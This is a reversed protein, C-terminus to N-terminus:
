IADSLSTFEFDSVKIRPCLMSPGSRVPPGFALLKNMLFFPSEAFRMNKVPKTIKGDEILFTGDRTVGSLLLTRVNVTSGTLRHVWIGRKTSAIMEELTQTSGTIELRAREPNLLLKRKSKQAEHPSVALNKLVGNEIWYTRKLIYGEGNLPSFPLLPDHPDYLLQVREDTMQQGLKTGGGQKSFVTLGEEAARNEIFATSPGLIPSVLSDVAEPELIVTYRGPEVAVPNESRRALEMARRAVDEVDVRAFDEGCSQAWGSGTGSKTRATMTFSNFTNCTYGLRGTNTLVLLSSAESMLDGAVILGGPDAMDIIGRIREGQRVPLAGALSSAFYIPPDEFSEPETVFMEAPQDNTYNRALDEVEAVLTAVGEPTINTTSNSALKGDLWVNVDAEQVSDGAMSQIDNRAFRASASARTSVRVMAEKAHVRALVDKAVALAQDRSFVALPSDNSLNLSPM